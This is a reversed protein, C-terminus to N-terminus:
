RYFLTNLIVPNPSRGVFDGVKAKTKEIIGPILSSIKTYSLEINAAKLNAESAEVSAIPSEHLAVTSNLDKQSM